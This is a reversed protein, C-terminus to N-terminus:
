GLGREDGLLNSIAIASFDSKTVFGVAPSAVILETLESEAYTSILV